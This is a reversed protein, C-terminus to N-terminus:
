DRPSPSTYLLCGESLIPLGKRRNPLFEIKRRDLEAFPERTQAIAEGLRADVDALLRDELNEIRGVAM